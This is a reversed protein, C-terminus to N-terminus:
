RVTMRTTDHGIAIALLKRIPHKRQDKNLRLSKVMDFVTM